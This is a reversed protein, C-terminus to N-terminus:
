QREELSAIENIESQLDASQQYRRRVGIAIWSLLIALLPAVNWLRAVGPFAGSAFSGALLLASLLIPGHWLWINRLHDRRRELEQRYYALAPTATDPLADSKSLIRRFRLATIVVWVAVAAGAVPHVELGGQPLRWALIALLFLAAALSMAIESRTSIRLQTTRRSLFKNVVVATEEEPQEKWIVRPDRSREEDSM